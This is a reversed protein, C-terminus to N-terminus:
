LFGKSEYIGEEERVEEFGLPALWEFVRKQEVLIFSRLMSWITAGMNGVFVNWFFKPILKVPMCLTTILVSVVDKIGKGHLPVYGYAGYDCMTLKMGGKALRGNALFLPGSITSKSHEVRRPVNLDIGSRRDM